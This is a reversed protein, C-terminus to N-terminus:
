KHSISNNLRTKFFRKLDDRWKDEIEYWVGFGAWGWIWIM